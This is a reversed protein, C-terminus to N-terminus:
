GRPRSEDGGRDHRDRHWRKRALNRQDEQWQAYRKQQEQSLLNNIGAEFQQDRKALEEFQRRLAQRGERGGSRDGSKFSSRMEQVAKRLSDRAPKTAAIHSDYRKTYQDLAAGTVKISDRM